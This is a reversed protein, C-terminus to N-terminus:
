KGAHVIMSAARNRADRQETEIRRHDEINAAAMAQLSASIKTLEELQRDRQADDEAQKLKWAGTSAVLDLVTRARMISNRNQSSLWLVAATVYGVLMVISPGGEHVLGYSLIQM